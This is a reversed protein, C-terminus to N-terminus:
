PHLKMSSVSLPIIKKILMCFIPDSSPAELFLKTAEPLLALILMLHCEPAKKLGVTAPGTLSSRMIATNTGASATSVTRAGGM